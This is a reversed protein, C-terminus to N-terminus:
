MQYCHLRLYKQRPYGSITHSKNYIKKDLEDYISDKALDSYKRNYAIKQEVIACLTYPTGAITLEFDM